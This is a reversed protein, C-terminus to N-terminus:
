KPSTEWVWMAVTQQQVDCITILHLHGTCSSSIFNALKSSLYGEAKTHNFNM